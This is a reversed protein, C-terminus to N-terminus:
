GDSAIKYDSNQGIRSGDRSEADKDGRQRAEIRELSGEILGIHARLTLDQEDQRAEFEELNRELKQNTNYIIAGTITLLPEM